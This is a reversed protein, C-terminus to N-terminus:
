LGPPCGMSSWALKQQSTWGNTRPIIELSGYRYQCKHEWWQENKLLGNILQGWGDNIMVLWWIVTGQGFTLHWGDTMTPINGVIFECSPVAALTLGGSVGPSKHGHLTPLKAKKLPAQHATKLPKPAKRHLSLSPAGILHDFLCIWPPPLGWGGWISPFQLFWLKWPVAKWIMKVYSASIHVALPKALCSAPQAPVAKVQGLWSGAGPHPGHLGNRCRSAVWCTGIHFCRDKASGNEMTGNLDPCANCISLRTRGSLEVCIHKLRWIFISRNCSINHM